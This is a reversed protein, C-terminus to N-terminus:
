SSRMDTAILLLYGANPHSAALNRLCIEVNRFFIHAEDNPYFRLFYKIESCKHLPCLILDVIIKATLQTSRKGKKKKKKPSFACCRLVFCRARSAFDQSTDLSTQAPDPMYQCWATSNRDSGVPRFHESCLYPFGGRWESFIPTYVLQMNRLMKSPVPSTVRWDSFNSTWYLRNLRPM